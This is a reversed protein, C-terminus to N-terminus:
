ARISWPLLEAGDDTVVEAAIVDQRLMRLVDAVVKAAMIRTYDIVWGGGAAGESASSNGHKDTYPAIM